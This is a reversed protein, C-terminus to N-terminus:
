KRQWIMHVYLKSAKSQKLIKQITKLTGQNVTPIEAIIFDIKCHYNSKINRPDQVVDIM